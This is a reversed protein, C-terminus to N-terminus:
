RTDIAIFPVSGSCRYFDGGPQQLPIGRDYLSRVEVPSPPNGADTNLGEAVSQLEIANTLTTVMGVAADKGSGLPTFAHFFIIGARIVNRKGSGGFITAETYTGEITASVFTAAPDDLTNEWVLPVGAYVSSAWQAAIYARLTTEATVWDM